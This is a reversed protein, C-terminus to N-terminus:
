SQGIMGPFPAPRPPPPAILEAVRDGARAVRQDARAQIGPLEYHQYHAFSAQIVAETHGYARAMQHLDEAGDRLTQVYAFADRMHGQIKANMIDAVPQSLPDTGCAGVHLDQEARRLDHYVRDAEATLANRLRLVNEPTVQMGLARPGVSDTMTLVM